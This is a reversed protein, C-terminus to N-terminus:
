LFIMKLQLRYLFSDHCMDKGSALQQNLSGDEPQHIVLPLKGVLVPFSSVEVVFCHACKGQNVPVPIRVHQAIVLRDISEVLRYKFILAAVPCVIPRCQHGNVM